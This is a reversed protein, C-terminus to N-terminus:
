GNEQSRIEELKARARDDTQSDRVLAKQYALWYKSYIGLGVFTLVAGSIFAPIKYPIPITNVIVEYNDTLQVTATVSVDFIMFMVGVFLAVNGLGMCVAM